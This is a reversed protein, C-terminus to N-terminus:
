SSELCDSFGLLPAEIFVLEATGTLIRADHQRSNTAVNAVMGKGKYGFGLGGEDSSDVALFCDANQMPSRNALDFLQHTKWTDQGTLPVLDCIFDCILSACALTAIAEGFKEEIAKPDFSGSGLYLTWDSLSCQCRIPQEAPEVELRGLPLEPICVREGQLGSFAAEISLYLAHYRLEDIGLFFERGAVTVRDGTEFTSRAPLWKDTAAARDAEGIVISTTPPRGFTIQGGKGLHAM